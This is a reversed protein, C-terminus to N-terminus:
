GRRLAEADMRRAEAQAYRMRVVPYLGGMLGALLSGGLVLPLWVHVPQHQVIAVVGAILLAVGFAAMALQGGLVPGRAIGKPACIGVVSGFLGGLVGIASGGIAGILGADQNTWWDNM